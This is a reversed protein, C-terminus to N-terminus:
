GTPACNIQYFLAGGPVAGEIIELELLDTGANLTIDFKVCNSGSCFSGNRGISATTVSTDRSASLNFSLQGFSRSGLLSFLVLFLGQQISRVM